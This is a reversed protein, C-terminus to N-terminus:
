AFAGLGALQRSPRLDWEFLPLPENLDHTLFNVDAGETKRRAAALMGPSFDVATVCAGAAALWVTHRGTGCGLDLVALGRTKGIAKRMHPEELDILPNLDDDYNSSWRDYGERVTAVQDPLQCSERSDIPM